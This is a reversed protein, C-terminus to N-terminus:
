EVLAIIKQVLDEASLDKSWTLYQTSRMFSPTTLKEGELYIPLFKMSKNDRNAVLERAEHLCNESKM